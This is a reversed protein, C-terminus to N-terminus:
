SIDDTEEDPVIVKCEELTGVLTEVTVAGPINACIIGHRVFYNTPTGRVQFIDATEGEQDVLINFPIQNTEKYEQVVELPEYINVLFVEVEGDAEEVLDQFVPLQKDCFKCLTNWFSIIMLKDSHDALNITNGETDLLELSPLDTGIGLTYQPTDPIEETEPTALGSEPSKNRTLMFFSTAGAAVITIALAIVLFTNSRYRKEKFWKNIALRYPLYLVLGLVAAFGVLALIIIM